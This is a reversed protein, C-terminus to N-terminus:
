ASMLELIASTVRRLQRECTALGERQHLDNFDTDKLQRMRVDFVPYVLECDPVGKIAKRLDAEDLAGKHAEVSFGEDQFRRVSEPHVGELLLVKIKNKPFSTTTM